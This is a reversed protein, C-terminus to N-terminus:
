RSLVNGAIRFDIAVKVFPYKFSGVIIFFPTETETLTCM